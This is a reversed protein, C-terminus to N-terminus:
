QIEDLYLLALPTLIKGPLSKCSVSTPVSASPEVSNVDLRRVMLM